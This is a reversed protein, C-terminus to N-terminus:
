VDSIDINNNSMSTGRTRAPFPGVAPPLEAPNRVLDIDAGSHLHLRSHPLSANMGHATLVPILPDDMGAM